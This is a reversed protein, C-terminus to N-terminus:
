GAERQLVWFVCGFHVAAYYAIQRLGPHEPLLPADAQMTLPSREPNRGSIAPLVPSLGLPREM